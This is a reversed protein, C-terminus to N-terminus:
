PESEHTHRSELYSARRRTGCSIPSVYDRWKKHYPKVHQMAQSSRSNFPAHAETPSCDDCHHDCSHHKEMRLIRPLPVDDTRAFARIIKVWGERTCCSAIKNGRARELHVIVAQLTM